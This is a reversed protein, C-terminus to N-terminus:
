ACIALYKLKLMIFYRLPSYVDYYYTPFMNWGLLEIHIILRYEKFIINNINTHSSKIFITLIIITIILNNNIIITIM